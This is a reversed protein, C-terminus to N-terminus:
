RSRPSAAHRVAIDLLDDLEALRRRLVSSRAPDTEDELEVALRAYRTLM